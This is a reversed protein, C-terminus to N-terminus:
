QATCRGPHPLSPFISLAVNEQNVLAGDKYIRQTTGDYTYGLLHWQGEIPTGPARVGTGNPDNPGYGIDAGGWHGVAGWRDDTGYNFSMNRSDTGRHGWSVLTEEGRINGQYAWVEISVTGAGEIGATSNPGLFHDQGDLLVGVRGDMSLRTPSTNDAGFTGGITGANAWDHQGHQLHRANLDILLNEAVQVQAYAATAPLGAIIL